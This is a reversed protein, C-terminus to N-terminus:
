FAPGNWWPYLPPMDRSPKMPFDARRKDLFATIGEAADPSHGLQAIARSDVRHADMPHAAGLMRWMMQRTMAVAVAASDSTLAHATELARPLLAEPPVIEKILGGALAESASFINGSFTWELAQSIGVIRPLFWTSCAEPVLGRRTFVFGFSAGQSAIRIDMPLTMTVGVGVAPGNIAAIWPKKSEFLRLAVIGGGDRWGSEDFVFADARQVLDSGACFARGAGTVIAVRIEDDLDVEEISALLGEQMAPNYANLRDPRNLTVIAIPGDREFTVAAETM